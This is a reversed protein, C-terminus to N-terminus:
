KVVRLKPRKDNKPKPPEPDGDPFDFGEEDKFMTGQGNERAYIGLVAKMPIYIHFPAGGFRANFVVEENELVLNQVASPNLNLIIRGDQVYQRPVTVGDVDADVLLHPTMGNDLLWDYIARLLYPRSPTMSM